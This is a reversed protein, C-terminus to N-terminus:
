INKRSDRRVHLDEHFGQCAFGYSKFDLTRIRDVVDFGFDLVFLSRPPICIKTLVRVPLVM